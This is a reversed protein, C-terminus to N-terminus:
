QASPMKGCGGGSLFKTEIRVDGDKEAILEEGEPLIKAEGGDKGIITVRLCDKGVVSEVIIKQVNDPNIKM